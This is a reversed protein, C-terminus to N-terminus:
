GVILVAIEIFCAYVELALGFRQPVNFFSVYVKSSQIRILFFMWMWVELPMQQCRNRDFHFM